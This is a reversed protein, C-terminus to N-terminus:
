REKGEGKTIEQMGEREAIMAKVAAVSSSPTVDLALTNGELSKVFIQM